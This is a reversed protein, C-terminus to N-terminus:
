CMRSDIWCVKNIMSCRVVRIYNNTISDSLYWLLPTIIEFKVFPSVKKTEELFWNNKSTDGHVRNKEWDEKLFVVLRGGETQSLLSNVLVTM